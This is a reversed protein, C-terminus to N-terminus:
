YTVLNIAWPGNTRHLHNVEHDPSSSSFLTYYDTPVKIGVQDLARTAKSKFENPDRALADKFRSATTRNDGEDSLLSVKLPGYAHFALMNIFAIMLGRLLIPTSTSSELLEKINPVFLYMDSEAQGLISISDITDNPLEAETVGLATRVANQHDYPLKFSLSYSTM